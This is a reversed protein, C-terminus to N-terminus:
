LFYPLLCFCKCFAQKQNTEQFSFPLILIRLGTTRFRPNPDTDFRCVYGSRQFMCVFLSWPIFIPAFIGEFWSPICLGCFEKSSLRPNLSYTHASGHTHMERDREPLNTPPLLLPAGVYNRFMEHWSNRGATGGMCTHAVSKRWISSHPIPPSPPNRKLRVRHLFSSCPSRWLCFCPLLM